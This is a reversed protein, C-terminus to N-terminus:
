TLLSPLVIIDHVIKQMLRWKNIKIIVQNATKIM